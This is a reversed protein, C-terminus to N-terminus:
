QLSSDLAVPHIGDRQLQKERQLANLDIKDFRRPRPAGLKTPLKAPRHLAVGIYRRQKHKSSPHPRVIEPTRQTVLSRQPLRLPMSGLPPTPAKAFPSKVPQKYFSVVGPETAYLTHDRGMMVNEGPHWLTGRQRMIIEGPYVFTSGSRKVGLRRGASNRNNKTTGGGRKASNRTQISGGFAFSPLRETALSLSTSPLLATRIPTAVRLSSTRWAGLM